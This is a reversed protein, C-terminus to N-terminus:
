ITMWSLSFRERPPTSVDPSGAYYLAPRRLDSTSEVQVVAASNVFDRSDDSTGNKIVGHAERVRSGQFVRVWAPVRFGPVQANPCGSLRVGLRALFGPVQVGLRRSKKPERTSLPGRGTSAYRPASHM